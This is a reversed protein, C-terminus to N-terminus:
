GKKEKAKWWRRKADAKSGRMYKDGVIELEKRIKAEETMTIIIGVRKQKARKKLRDMYRKQAVEVTM